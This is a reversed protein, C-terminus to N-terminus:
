GHRLETVIEGIATQEGPFHRGYDLLWNIAMSRAAERRGAAGKPETGQWDDSEQHGLVYHATECLISSVCREPRQLMEDTLIVILYRGGVAETSFHCSPRKASIEAYCCANLVNDVTERPILALAFSLVLQFDEGGQARPSAQGPLSSKVLDALRRPDYYGGEAETM